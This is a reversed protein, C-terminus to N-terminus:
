SPRRSVAAFVVVGAATVIALGGTSLMTDTSGLVKLPHTLHYLFHPLEHAVLVAAAAQIVERRMWVTAIALAVGVAFFGAGADILLHHNYPGDFAVWHRGLGPFGRYFGAPDVLAWLGIFLEDVALLALVFRVWTRKETM